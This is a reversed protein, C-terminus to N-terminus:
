KELCLDAWILCRHLLGAVIEQGPPAVGDVNVFKNDVMTAQIEKLQDNFARVEAAPFQTCIDVVQWLM